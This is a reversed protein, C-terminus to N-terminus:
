SKWDVELAAYAKGNVEKKKISVKKTVGTGDKLYVKTRIFGQALLDKVQGETLRRKSLAGLAKDSISFRCCGEKRGAAGCYYRTEKKEKDGYAYVDGGCFPCAGIVEKGSSFTVGTETSKIAQVKEQIFPLFHDFFDGETKTGDVIEAMMTEWDATVKPSYLEPPLVHIVGIGTPTPVIYRSGEKNKVYGRQFLVQIIGARTAQTGIGKGKLIKGGEITAGANEMATLLTAETHLKPPVTEKRVVEREGVPLEQGKFLEPFAQVEGEQEGEQGGEGVEEKGSLGEQVAKWGMSLPRIGTASFSLDQAKVVVQTHEYVYPKSLAVILRCLVLGLVDKMVRATVGQKREDATPEMKEVNFGEIRETPIIAHHDTVKGDDVIRKNVLLGESLLGKCAEQYGPIGGVARVRESLYPVLDSTVYRSDTRPYSLVKQTEYLAQAAALTLAATYGYKRNADRQLETIDYLQPRDTARKRVTVDEVVVTGAAMIRSAAGEVLAKDTVRGEPDKAAPPFTGEADKNWYVKFPQSGALSLVIGYYTEKKFGKVELYRQVVFYLTPSQVRGVSINAHYKLSEARSLSMGLIWDAKKKCLEGKVIGEFEREERLHAWADRIAEDTMSTACFRRVPKRCGAKERILWQLVHGEPGMDGCNIVEEVDDRHILDKIVKFQDKTEELVVLKFALGQPVLPLEGYAREAQDGYMDKMSVFGYEEPEALGVLHGVAWTVLLGNGEVYGHKKVVNGEGVLVRAIDRAVSPKEAMLLKYGM